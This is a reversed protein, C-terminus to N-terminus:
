AAVALEERVVQLLGRDEPHQELHTELAMMAEVKTTPADVVGAPKGDNRQTIVFGPDRHGFRLPKGFDVYADPGRRGIGSVSAAGRQLMGELMSDLLDFKGLLQHRRARTDIIYTDYQVKGTVISGFLLEDSVEFTYGAGFRDYPAASLTKAEDMEFFQAPAFSDTQEAGLRKSLTLNGEPNVIEATGLQYFASGSSKVPGFRKIPAMTHTELPIVRQRVIIADLPDVPPNTTGGKPAPALSVVGLTASGPAPTWNRADQLARQLGPVRQPQGAPDPSGLWPDLTPLDDGEESGFKLNVGLSASAFWVSVSVRGQVQWPTPGKLTGGFFVGFGKGLFTVRIDAAIRATFSFPSFIFIAQIDVTAHLGIGYGSANVELAGGVQVSNSTVAFFGALTIGPNGNQGLDVKLRELQPTGPPPTYGKAFGGMSILFNPRDGWRLRLAMDGTVKYNAVTSKQLQADLAFTKAPFNLVGRIAMHLDVLAPKGPDTKRPLEIHILGVATLVYEPLALIFAIDGRVVSPTGWGLKAMPGFVQKDEAAPFVTALSEIIQPARQTVNRPFLIDALGGDEFAKQLAEESLTRNIGLLGGVGNLTFGLGLQIPQFEASILIVFSFGRRGDPLKTDIVGFAKVTIEYIRLELAGSYRGDEFAIFGGGSIPGADVQLGVGRPEVFGPKADFIGLNGREFGFRLRAGIGELSAKVPGFDFLLDASAALGVGAELEVALRLAQVVVPGLSMSVPLRVELGGSFTFHVGTRRSWLLGVQFPFEISEAPLSSRVFGDAEGLTLVFRGKDMSLSVAVDGPGMTDASGILAIRFASARVSAGGPMSLIARDTARDEDDIRAKWSLAVEVSLQAVAGGSGGFVDRVLTPAAGPRLVVGVGTGADGKVAVDLAWEDTLSVSTADTAAIDLTVALPQVAPAVTPVPYVDLAFEGGGVSGIPFVLRRVLDADNSDPDIGYASVFEETPYEIQPTPGLITGLRALNAFLRASDISPTGWGYVDALLAAPDTFLQTARSSVFRRRTIVVSEGTGDSIVQRNLEVIGLAVLLSFLIPQADELASVFVHEYFRAEFDPLDASHATAVGKVATVVAASRLFVQQFAANAEADSGLGAAALEEAVLADSLAEALSVAATSILGLDTPPTAVSYGLQLLLSRQNASEGAFAVAIPRLAGAMRTALRTVTDPM